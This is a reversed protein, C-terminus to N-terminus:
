AERVALLRNPLLNPRQLSPCYIASAYPISLFHDHFPSRVHFTQVSDLGNRPVCLAVLAVSTSFYFLLNAVMGAYVLYRLWTFVRFIQLILLFLALKIISLTPGALCISTLLIQCVKAVM